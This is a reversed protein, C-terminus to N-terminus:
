TLPRFLIIFVKPANAEEVKKLFQNKLQATSGPKPTDSM